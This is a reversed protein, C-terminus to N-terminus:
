DNPNKVPAIKLHYIDGWLSSRWWRFSGTSHGDGGDIIDDLLDGMSDKNYSFEVYVYCLKGPM